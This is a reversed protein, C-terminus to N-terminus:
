WGYSDVPLISAIFEWILLYGSFVIPTVQLTIEFTLEVIFTRIRFKRIWLYLIYMSNWISSYSVCTDAKPLITFYLCVIIKLCILCHLLVLTRAIYRLLTLQFQVGGFGIITLGIDYWIVYCWIMTCLIYKTLPLTHAAFATTSLERYCSSWLHYRPPPALSM